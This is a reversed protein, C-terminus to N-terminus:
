ITSRSIWRSGRDLSCTPLCLTSSRISTAALAMCCCCPTISTAQPTAIPAGLTLYHLHLEPLTEGSGFHFDKAVYEGQVGHYVPAGGPQMSMTQAAAAATFAFVAISLLYRM